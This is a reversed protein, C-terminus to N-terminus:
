HAIITGGTVKTGGVIRTATDTISFAQVASPTSWVNSGAPDRAYARWYYTGGNSLQSGQYLYSGVTSYEIATAAGYAAGANANMGRWNTLLSSQDVTELVVSCNSTSCIDFKYQVYDANGDTTRM